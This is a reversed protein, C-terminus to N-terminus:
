QSSSLSTDETSELVFQDPSSRELRSIEEKLLLCKEQMEDIDANCLDQKAVLERKWEKFKQEQFQVERTIKNKIHLEHGRFLAEDLILNKLTESMTVEHYARFVSIPDSYDIPGLHKSEYFELRKSLCYERFREYHVETSLIFDLTYDSMLLARLKVFDCHDPNEVEALGWAYKRGRVDKGDYNPYVQNSGIVAYPMDSRIQDILDQYSGDASLDCVIYNEQLKEQAKRRITELETPSFTDCKGLVPVLNVRSSLEKMATLERTSVEHVNPSIFFLCCNVRNDRIKKRHPQEEQFIYQLHQADIYRAISVCSYESPDLGGTDILSVELTVDEEKLRLRYAKFSDQQLSEYPFLLEGFLTNMLTTRGCGPNGVVMITFHCSDRSYKRINQDMIQHLGVSNPETREM